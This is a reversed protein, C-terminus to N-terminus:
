YAYKPTIYFSCYAIGPIKEVCKLNLKEALSEFESQPVNEATDIDAIIVAAGAELQRRALATCKHNKFHPRLQCPRDRFFDAMRRINGDAANIDLLLAPTDLDEIPSGIVGAM